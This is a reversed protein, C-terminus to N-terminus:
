AEKGKKVPVVSFYGSSDILEVSRPYVAEGGMGYNVVMSARELLDKGALKEELAGVEWGAKTFVPNADMGLCDDVDKHSAPIVLLRESKEYLAVGLRATVACFPPVDLTIEVEYGWTVVKRHLYLYTSYVTPDGLIPFTVDRGGDLLVCVRDANAEYTADLTAEDRVMPVDCLLIEKREALEGVITLATEGGSGKGPVALVTAQAIIWQAERAILEPDGLGMRVGYLIGREM